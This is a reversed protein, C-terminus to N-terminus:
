RTRIALGKRIRRRATSPVSPREATFPQALNEEHAVKKIFEIDEPYTIYDVARKYKVLSQRGSWTRKPTMNWVASLIGRQTETFGGWIGHPEYELSYMLCKVRIPCSRCIEVAQQKKELEQQNMNGSGSFPFWMSTDHGSCAGGRPTEVSQDLLYNNNFLFYDQNLPQRVKPSPEFGNPQRRGKEPM